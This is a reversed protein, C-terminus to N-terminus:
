QCIAASRSEPLSCTSLRRLYFWLTRLGLLFKMFDDVITSPKDSPILKPTAFACTMLRADVLGPPRTCESAVAIALADVSSPNRATTTGAPPDDMGATTFPSASHENLMTYSKD